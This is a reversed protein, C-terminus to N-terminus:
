ASITRCRPRWRPPSACRSPTCRSRRPKLHFPRLAPPHFCTQPLPPRPRGLEGGRECVRVPAGVRTFVWGGVWVCLVYVYVCLCLRMCVCVCALTGCDRGGAGGWFCCCRGVEIHEYVVHRAELAGHIAYIRVLQEEGWSKDPNWAALIVGGGAAAGGGGAGDDGDCSGSELAGSGSARRGAAAAAAAAARRAQAPDIFTADGLQIKTTGTHDRDRVSQYLIGQRRQPAAPQTHNPPTPRSPHAHTPARTHM